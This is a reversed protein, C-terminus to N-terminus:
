IQPRFRGRFTGPRRAGSPTNRITPRCSRVELAQRFGAKGALSSRNPLNSRGFQRPTRVKPVGSKKDEASQSFLRLFLTEYSKPRFKRRPRRFANLRSRRNRRNRLNPSKPPRPWFNGAAVRPSIRYKDPCPARLARLAAAERLIRWVGCSM